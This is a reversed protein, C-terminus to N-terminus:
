IRGHNQNSKTRGNGSAAERVFSNGNICMILGMYREYGLPFASM